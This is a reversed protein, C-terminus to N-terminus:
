EPATPLRKLKLLIASDSAAEFAKSDEARIWRLEILGKLVDTSQVYAIREGIHTILHDLAHEVAEQVERSQFEWKPIWSDGIPAGLAGTL